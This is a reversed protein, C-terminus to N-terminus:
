APASRRRSTARPKSPRASTARPSPSPSSRSRAVELSQDSSIEVGEATVGVLPARIRTGGSLEIGYQLNTTSDAEAVQDPASGAPAGPVFLAVSSLVVLVALLVLRWNERLASM